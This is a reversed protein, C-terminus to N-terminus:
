YMFQPEINEPILKFIDGKSFLGNTPSFHIGQFEFPSSLKAERRDPGMSAMVVGPKDSPAFPFRERMVYKNVGLFETSFGGRESFPDIFHSQRVDRLFLPHFVSRISNDNHRIVIDHGANMTTQVQLPPAGREIEFILYHQSLRYSKSEVETLRAKILAHQYHMATISAITTVIAVAALLEILTYGDSDSQSKGPKGDQLM